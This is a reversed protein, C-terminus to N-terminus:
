RAGGEQGAVSAARTALSRIGTLLRALTPPRKFPPQPSTISATGTTDTLTVSLNGAAEDHPDVLITYIGSSSVTVAPLTTSGCSLGSALVTQGDTDLLQIPWFVCGNTSQGSVVYRRGAAGQFTFRLVQGPTATVTVPTGNATIQATQDVVDYLGVRVTGVKEISPDVLITYQGDSPAPLPDLFSAGCTNRTSLPQGDSKLIAFPWFLCNSAILDQGSAAYRHGALAQFTLRIQQGPMTIPVTVYPGNPTIPMEVDVVDYLHIRPNALPYPASTKISITYRGTIPATQPDLVTSGCGNQSGIVTQGDPHILSVPWSCGGNDPEVWVSYRHGQVGEFTLRQEENPGSFAVVAPPGNPVITIDSGTASAARKVAAVLRTGSYIYDRPVEFGASVRWETLVEGGLGRAYYTTGTGDVAKARQGDADYSYTVVGSSVTATELQNTPTYTFSTGPATALNGNAFYTFQAGNQAKLRLTNPWYEYTSGNADLRNGHVDYVYSIYPYAGTSTASTLRNLADHGFNQNRGSRSDTITGINGVADRNIYGFQMAGVSIGTTWYRQPHYTITTQLLNGSTYAALGGSPHYTFGFAYDRGISPEFVHTVRHAADYEYAVRRGSPYIIARVDDRDDYEYETTFLRYDVLDYRRQLHGAGDYVFTSEVDGSSTWMRQSTGTYYDIYTVHTGATISRVRDNGDVAYTTVLGTADTKTTLVGAADYTYGIAGSEPHTESELLNSNNYTWTRALNDPATMRFLQGLADYGYYWTQQNADTLQTVLADDPHGFAAMTTTTAHNNEDATTVSDLGFTSTQSSGDPNQQSTMRGLADYSFHALPDTGAAANADVPYGQDSVRGEADFRTITRLGDATTTQVIRGFGDLAQTTVAAGRTSRIWAGSTDDYDTTIPLTNARQRVTERFLEDYAFTTLVGDQEVSNVTGNTNIDRTVVFEPTRMDWWQGWIYAWTTRKNTATTARAVNGRGDTAFTTKIGTGGIKFWATESTRFGTSSTYTWERRMTTTGVTVDQRTPLGILKPTSASSLLYTFTATRGLGQNNNELIQYPKHFDGFNTTRFTYQTTYAHSAGGVYRTVTRQTVEPTGWWTSTSYSISSLLTYTLATRELLVNNSDYVNQQVLGIVGAINRGDSSTGGHLYEVKTNSPTTITTQPSYTAQGSTPGGVITWTGLPGGGRDYSRREALWSWPVTVTPDEVALPIDYTNYTYHVTGGAPATAQVLSPLLWPSQTDYLFQWHPGRPPIVETLELRGGGVDEFDYTWTSNEYTMSRVRGAADVTLLVDRSEEGLWQRVVIQGPSRILQVRNGFPDTMDNLVYLPDGSSYTGQQVYTCVVGNPTTVAHAFRDYSYFSATRTKQLSLTSSASPASVFIARQRAGDAMLLTPSVGLIQGLSNNMFNYNAPVVPEIVSMPIGPFGFQWRPETAGVSRMGQNNYTRQFVLPRGADGPLVLDNFTLVLNGSAPDYHEWPEASFYSRERHLGKSDIENNIVTSNQAYTSLPVVFTAGLMVSFTVLRVVATPRVIWTKPQNGNVM